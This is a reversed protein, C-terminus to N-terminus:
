WNEEMFNVRGTHVDYIAGVLGILGQSLLSRIIPSRIPIGALALQVNTEAVRDVFAPNGSTRYASDYETAELAPRLKKMIGGLHGINVHDCLGRIAGCNTHGLVVILRSGAIKGAFEMSGLIDNNIFNGAVRISFIDGLGQDFILESSVRSDICSLVTAFPFQGDRTENVQHLLDANAHLNRRFRRNGEKLFILAMQPTVYAQSERSQTRM